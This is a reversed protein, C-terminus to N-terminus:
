LMIRHQWMERISVNESITSLIVLNAGMGYYALREFCEKVLIFSCAKWNGTKEKNAPKKNIDVTGDGTYIDDSEVM